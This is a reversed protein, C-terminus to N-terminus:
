TKLGVNMNMLDYILMKEAVRKFLPVAIASAMYWSPTNKPENVFVVVVRKYDGKEVIASFSYIHDKKSYTGNKICRATGTKGMIKYGQLGKNYKEGILGLIEKVGNVAKDGYIKKKLTNPMRSPDRVLTPQVDYGGNAIICFARTLQLLTAMIEYGFSMVIISSRSWNHPPNVFGDREGPFQIGTKEGFGLRKLHTHFKPGLRKAVHATGVNNSYRIVDRFPLVEGMDKWNEVRFKDIYSVKGGCEIEEDFEVVEEELAALATFAKIASGLEYTETVIKNKTKNLDKINKENPDFDPYNAMVIIEGTVPEMIVVSGSTAGVEDIVEQLEDYVLFQLKRDLTLSVSKGEEGLEKIEKDFYFNKSRADKEIRITTPTGGLRENFELEIGAIGINDIDTFGIVTSTTNFPYFRQPENIFHIDKLGLNKLEEFRKDPMQRELWLFKKNKDKKIKKYISKYKKKLYKEIQNRDEFQTPLIFASVAEKNLALVAKEYDYIKARPPNITLEVQYQASALTKFFNKRNIQLLYLRVLVILYLIFFVALVVFVRPKYNKKIM